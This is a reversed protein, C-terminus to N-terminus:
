GLHTMQPGDKSSIYGPFSEHFEKQASIVQEWSRQLGHLPIVSLISGGDTVFACRAVDYYNRLVEAVQYVELMTHMYEDLHLSFLEHESCQLAIHTHGRYRSLGAVTQGGHHIVHRPFLPHTASQLNVQAPCDSSCSATYFIQATSSTSITGASDMALIACTKNSQSFEM